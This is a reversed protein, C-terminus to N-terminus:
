SEHEDLYLNGMQFVLLVSVMAIVAKVAIIGSMWKLDLKAFLIGPDGVDLLSYNVMGTLVLAIIVYLV